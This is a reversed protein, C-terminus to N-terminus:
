VFLLRAGAHERLFRPTSMVGDLGGTEVAMTDVSASCAYLKLSELSLATDRLEGLSRAFTERGGWALSPTREPEQALRPLDPDLFLALGGFALLGACPEGDAAASVLVSLGSYLREPEGTSIVAAVTVIGITVVTSARPSAHGSGSAIALRSMAASSGPAV